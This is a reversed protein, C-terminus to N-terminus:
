DSLMHLTILLWKHTNIIQTGETVMNVIQQVSLHDLMIVGMDEEKVKGTKEDEMEYNGPHHVQNKRM